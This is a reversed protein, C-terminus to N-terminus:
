RFTCNLVHLDDVSAAFLGSGSPGCREFVLNSVTVNRSCSFSMDDYQGPQTNPFSRCRVVAGGPRVATVLVNTTTTVQTEGSLYHIGNYLYVCLNDPGTTHNCSNHQTGEIEKGILAFSLNKCPNNSAYRRSNGTLCNRDNTGNNPSVYRVVDCQLAYVFSLASLLSLLFLIPYKQMAM